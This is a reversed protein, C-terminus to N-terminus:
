SGFRNWRRPLPLGAMNGATAYNTALGYLGLQSAHGLENQASAVGKEANIRFQDLSEDAGPLPFAFLAFFTQVAVALKTHSLTRRISAGRNMQLNM